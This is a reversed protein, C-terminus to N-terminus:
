LNTRAQQASTLKQSIWPPKAEGLNQPTTCKCAHFVNVSSSAYEFCTSLHLTRTQTEHQNFLRRSSHSGLPSREGPNSAHHEELHVLEGVYKRKRHLSFCATSTQIQHQNVSTLGEHVKTPQISAPQVNAKQTKASNYLTDTDKHNHGNKSSNM